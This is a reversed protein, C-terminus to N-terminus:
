NSKSSDASALCFDIATYRGNKVVGNKYSNTSVAGTCACQCRLSVIHRTHESGCCFAQKSSQTIYTHLDSMSQRGPCLRYTPQQQVLSEQGANIRKSGEKKSGLCTPWDRSHAPHHLLTHLTAERLYQSLDLGFRDSCGRQVRLWGTHAGVM